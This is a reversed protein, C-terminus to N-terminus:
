RLRGLARRAEAAVDSAPNLVLSQQLRESASAREGLRAEIAGAHYLISAERIGVALVQEMVKRAEAAQGARYLAWAYADLTHVDRRRAVERRAVALAEAPRRAHDAYYFVLERNANDAGHTERLAEREFEAFRADAEGRRGARGLALALDYLNEPHPATDYRQRLLAAAEGRRGQAARAKALQALAYHYGPFAALAEGLLREAEHVDGTLLRLHAMQTLIWARDEVEGMPTADSAHAMLELAGEVDGFLERLYAARTLAPLSGPRLNLMWQCAKEAREYDGLEVNADTLLGYVMVDDPVRTNLAEALERAEAFRHQGLLVWARARKAEFNDPALELAGAIAEEARVYLGPDATERARRALALALEVHGMASGPAKTISLRAQEIRREAPTAPGALDQAEFSAGVALSCAVALSSVSAKM